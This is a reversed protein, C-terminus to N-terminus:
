EEDRSVNRNKFIKAIARRLVLALLAMAVAFAIMLITLVDSENPTKRDLWSKMWTGMWKRREIHKAARKTMRKLNRKGGLIHQLFLRRAKQAIIEDRRRRRRMSTSEKRRKEDDDDDKREEVRRKKEKSTFHLSSSTFVEQFSINDSYFEGSKKQKM